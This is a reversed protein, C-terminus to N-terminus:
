EVIKFKKGSHGKLQKVTFSTLGKAKAAATAAETTSFTKARRSRKRGRTLLIPKKRDISM